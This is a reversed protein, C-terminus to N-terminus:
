RPGGPGQPRQPRYEDSSLKGDGNKDLKKLAVAANTIEDVDIVENQNIDLAKELPPVPRRGPGDAGPGGPFGQGDPPPPPLQQMDSGSASPYPATQAQAWVYAGTLTLSAVFLIVVTIEFAQRM